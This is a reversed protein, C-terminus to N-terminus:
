RTALAPATRGGAGASCAIRKSDAHDHEGGREPRRPRRNAPRNGHPKRKGRIIAAIKQATLLGFVTGQKGKLPFRPLKKACIETTPKQAFRQTQPIIPPMIAYGIPLSYRVRLYGGPPVPPRRLDGAAARCVMALGGGAAARCVIALGGGAAARCVMALGGGAAARCAMVLLGGAAAGGAGGAVVGGAGGACCAPFGFAGAVARSELRACM